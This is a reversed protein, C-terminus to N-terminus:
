VFDCRLIKPALVASLDGEKYLSELEAKLGRTQMAALEQAYADFRRDAQMNRLLVLDRPTLPQLAADPLPAVDARRASLWKVDVDHRGAEMVQRGKAGRRYTSLILVGSPNYDFVGLVPTGPLLDALKRLFARTALDPQGKATLMVAHLQACIGEQLLRNFVADKEVVLIRRADSRLVAAAIRDMDGPIARESGGSLDVWLGSDERISLCGTVIGRSACTVGLCQRPVGLLRAAQQIAANVHVASKVTQGDVLSYYLERQTATRSATLNGHIEALVRWLRVVSASDKPRLLHKKVTGGPAHLVLAPVTPPHALLATALEEAVAEIRQVVVERSAFAGAPAVAEENAGEGDDDADDSAGDDLPEEELVGEAAGADKDSDSDGDPWLSDM